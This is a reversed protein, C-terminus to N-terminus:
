RSKRPTGYRQQVAYVKEIRRDIEKKLVLPNLRGHQTELKDKVARAVVPHELIRMYPTKATKEYQRVYKSKIKVKSTM